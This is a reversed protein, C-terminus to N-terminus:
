RTWMKAKGTVQEPTRGRTCRGTHARDTNYYRLYRRREERLGTINSLLHRAFAAELM